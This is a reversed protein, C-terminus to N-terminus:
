GGARVWRAVLDLVAPTASDMAAEDRFTVANFEIGM